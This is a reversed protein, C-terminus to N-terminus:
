EKWIRSWGSSYFFFNFCCNFVGQFISCVAENHDEVYFSSIYNWFHDLDMAEGEVIGPWELLNIVQQRSSYEERSNSINKSLEHAVLDKLLQNTTNAVLNGDSYQNSSAGWLPFDRGGGQDKEDTNELSWYAMDDHGADTEEHVKSSKAKSRHKPADSVASAHTKCFIEWLLVGEDGKIIRRTCNTNRLACWPHM